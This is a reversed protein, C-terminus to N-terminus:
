HMYKEDQKEIKRGLWFGVAVVPLIGFLLVWFMPKFLYDEFPNDDTGINKVGEQFFGILSAFFSTVFLTLFCFKFGVWSSEKKQILIQMGAKGGFYYGCALLLLSAVALNLNYSFDAFWFFAKLLGDGIFFSTMIIQAITLGILASKLGLKRGIKKAETETM